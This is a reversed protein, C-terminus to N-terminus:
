WIVLVYKSMLYILSELGYIPKKTNIFIRTEKVTRALM